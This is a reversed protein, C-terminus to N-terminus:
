ERNADPIRHGSTLVEAQTIGLDPDVSQCPSLLALGVVMPRLHKAIM